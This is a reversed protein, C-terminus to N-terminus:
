TENTERKMENKKQKRKTKQSPTQPMQRETKRQTFIFTFASENSLLWCRYWVLANSKSCAAQVAHTSTQNDYIALQDVPIFNISYIYNIQKYKCPRNTTNNSNKKRKPSQQSKCPEKSFWKQRGISNNARWFFLKFFYIAFRASSSISKVGFWINAM